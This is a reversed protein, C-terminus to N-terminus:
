SFFLIKIVLNSEIQEYLIIAKFGKNEIDSPLEFSRFGCQPEEEGLFVEDEYFVTENNNLYRSCWTNMSNVLVDGSLFLGDEEDIIEVIKLKALHNYVNDQLLQPYNEKLASPLSLQLKFAQPPTDLLQVMPRYIQDITVCAQFGYDISVVQFENVTKQENLTMSCRFFKDLRSLINCRYFKENIRCVCALTKRTQNEDPKKEIDKITKVAVLLSNIKGTGKSLFEQFFKASYGKNDAAGSGYYNKFKTQMESLMQQTDLCKYFQVSLLGNELNVNTVLVDHCQDDISALGAKEITSLLTKNTPYTNFTDPQSIIPCSKSTALENREARKLLLQNIPSHKEELFALGKHNLLDSFRVFQNTVIPYLSHNSTQKANHYICIDYSDDSKKTSLFDVYIFNEILIDTVFTKALSGWQGDGSGTPKVGSM